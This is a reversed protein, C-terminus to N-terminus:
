LMLLIDLGTVFLFVRMLIKTRKDLESYKIQLKDIEEKAGDGGSKIKERGSEVAAAFAIGASSVGLYKLFKRRSQLSDSM